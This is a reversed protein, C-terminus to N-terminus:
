LHLGRADMVGNFAERAKDGQRKHETAIWRTIDPRNVRVGQAGLKKVIQRVSYGATAMACSTVIMGHTPERRLQAHTPRRKTM